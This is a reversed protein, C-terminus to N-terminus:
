SRRSELARPSSPDPQDAPATWLVELPQTSALLESVSMLVAGAESLRHLVEVLAADRVGFQNRYGDNVIFVVRGRGDLGVGAVIVQSGELMAGQPGVFATGNYFRAIQGGGLFGLSGKETVFIGKFAPDALDAVESLSIFWCECPGLKGENSNGFWEAMRGYVLVSFWDYQLAPQALIERVWLNPLPAAVEVRIRAPKPPAITPPSAAVPIAPQLAALEPGPERVALAPAQKLATPAAPASHTPTQAAHGPAAAAPQPEAAQGPPPTAKGLRNIATHNFVATLEAASLRLLNLPQHLHITKQRGEEDTVTVSNEEKWALYQEGGDPTKQKFVLNPPILKVIIERHLLGCHDQDQLLELSHDNLHHRHNDPRGAVMVPFQIDFGTSSAPNPLVIVEKGTSAVTEPVYRENLIQELRAADNRGKEFSCLEGDLEVWDRLAGTALAHPKRLLGQQQLSNFGAVTLGISALTERGRLCHIHVQERKDVEVRFHLPAAEGPTASEVVSGPSPAHARKRALEQTERELLLWDNFLQELKACGAPDNLAVTQGLVKVHDSGIELGTPEGPLKGRVSWKYHDLQSWSKTPLLEITEGALTLRFVEMNALHAGGASHASCKDVKIGAPKGTGPSRQSPSWRQDPSHLAPPTPALYAAQSSRNGFGPQNEAAPSNAWNM